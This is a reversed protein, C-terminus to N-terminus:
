DYVECSRRCCSVIQLCNYRVVTQAIGEVTLGRAPLENEGGEDEWEAGHGAHAGWQKQQRGARRATERDARPRLGSQSLCGGCLAPQRGWGCRRRWHRAKALTGGAHHQLPSLQANM